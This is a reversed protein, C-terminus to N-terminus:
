CSLLLALQMTIRRPRSVECSLIADSICVKAFNARRSFTYTIFSSTKSFIIHLRFTLQRIPQHEGFEEYSLKLLQLYCNMSGILLQVNLDQPIYVSM